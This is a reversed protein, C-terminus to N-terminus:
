FFEYSSKKLKEDLEDKLQDTILPETKLADQIM